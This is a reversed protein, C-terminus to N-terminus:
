YGCDPMNRYGRGSFGNGHMPQPIYNSRSAPENVYITEPTTYVNRVYVTRTRQPEPTSGYVCTTSSGSSDCAVALVTLGILCATAAVVAVIDKLVSM